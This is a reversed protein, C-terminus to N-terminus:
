LLEKEAQIWEKEQKPIGKWFASANALFAERIPCVACELAGVSKTCCLMCSREFRHKATWYNTAGNQMDTGMRYFRHEGYTTLKM